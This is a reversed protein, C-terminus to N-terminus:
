ACKMLAGLEPIQPMGGILGSVRKLSAWIVAQNSNIVPKGLEAELAAIADIQTTNTCSLFYGDAEQRQNARTIEVWRSPPASIYGDSPPLALAVDHLTEFGRAKLYAIEHDNHSQVYPSILVLRRIAAAQLAEVVAQATSIAIAGSGKRVAELIRAEGDTGHQMSNATCHFVVVNCKADGLAGAARETEELLAELPKAHRGTMQLRTAHVAVGPPLFRQFHPESLRNGSPIILGIRARAFGTSGELSFDDASM